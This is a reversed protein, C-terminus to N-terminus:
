PNLKDGSIRTSRIIVDRDMELLRIGSRRVLSGGLFPKVVWLDIGNLTTGSSGITGSPSNVYKFDPYSTILCSKENNCFIRPRPGSTGNVPPFLAQVLLIVKDAM